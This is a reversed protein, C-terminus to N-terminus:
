FLSRHKATITTQGTEYPTDPLLKKKNIASQTALQDCRENEKNGAHGKVWKFEVRHTDCLDLLQAWLDANEAPDIQNRMWGKRKWRKAWGKEIGNVVYQSDSYLTVSCPYKLTKLGEIGAMLEMRNNTTHRYGGSLEKRKKGLLLVVGYGGPGPNNICGGDTYIVVKVEKLKKDEVKKEAAKIKLEATQVALGPKQFERLWAQAEKRTSFGQYRANPFGDVQMEAGDEGYWKDYIGPKRGCAVAYFKIKNKSM